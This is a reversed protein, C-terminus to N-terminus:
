NVVLFLCYVMSFSDLLLVDSAWSSHHGYITKNRRSNVMINEVKEDNPWNKANPADQVSLNLQDMSRDNIEDIEMTKLCMNLHENFHINSVNLFLKNCGPCTDKRFTTSTPCWKNYEESTVQTSNSLETTSECNTPLNTSLTESSEFTILRRKVSKKQQAADEQVSFWRKLGNNEAKPKVLLELAPQSRKSQQNSQQNNQQQSNQQQNNQQSFWMKLGNECDRSSLNSLRIGLLRINLPLEDTVIQKGINYIDDATHIYKKVSRERTILKFNVLKFTIAITKGQLREKLLDAALHDALERLKEYIDNPRNLSSFTTKVITSGIGLAARIFFNFSTLSFMQHIYVRNNLIAGCTKIDMENLIRETVRGIGPIKRISLPRVFKMIDDINNQLRYQGNPKNLDSCIKALLKNAAIGASATLQTEEHIERRIQEVVNDPSEDTTELYKTIDLYAEDLSMPTYNPDYHSFIERIQKSVARYKDFNCPVIILEPCLKKAIFGPMASRVGYNRAEYNSTSLMSNDGVAMPKNRLSPNDREEIAAYFADMDIHVIIHSLDREREAAQILSDVKSNLTTLDQKKLSEYKKMMQKLKLGLAEDKKAENLYFASSKSAEYIIQKVKEKDIGQLGAKNSALEGIRSNRILDNNKSSTSSPYLVSSPGINENEQDEEVCHFDAELEEGILFEQSDFIDNEM